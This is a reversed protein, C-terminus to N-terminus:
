PAIIGKFWRRDFTLFWFGGGRWTIGRMLVTITMSSNRATMQRQNRTIMMGYRLKIKGSKITGIRLEPYFL